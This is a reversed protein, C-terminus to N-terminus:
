SAAAYRAALIPARVAEGAMHGILMFQWNSSFTPVRWSKSIEQPGYVINYISVLM